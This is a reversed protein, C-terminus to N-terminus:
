FILVNIFLLGVFLITMGLLCLPKIKEKFCLASMLMSSLIAGGQMLPYILVAALRESALTKFYSYCFLFVAMVAIYLIKRKDLMAQKKNECFEANEQRPKEKLFLFLLLLTIGSFLYVYFNFVSVPTENANKTFIKLSFDTFGNAAGVVLLLLVSSFRLKQKIQNTYASMIFASVFLLGLGLIQSATISEGYFFRSFLIPILLGVSLFADISTYASKQAALLWSVIFISTFVGSFASILLIKKSVLMASFSGDFCVFLLGIPICFLMRIFNSFVASKLGSTKDSIKKGFFGKVTGCLLATFIFLYGM